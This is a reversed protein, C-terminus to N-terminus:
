GALVALNERDFELIQPALMGWRCFLGSQNKYNDEMRDYWERDPWPPDVLRSNPMLAHVDEMTHKPHHCDVYASAFLLTPVEIARFDDPWMGPVPSGELPLFTRAWRNLTEVFQDVDMALIRDRNAPNREILEAFDRVRTVAEMGGEKAAMMADYCYVNILNALPIWDSTIWLMVMARTIEPHRRTALLSVRAGASGGIVLANTMNLQKMLGALSDANVISESEGEFNFDSEGCNTRDWTLVKYDQEALAEALQPVGPTDKGTRGGPTIVANRSGDGIIRYGIGIGNVDMRPM